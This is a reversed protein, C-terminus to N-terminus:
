YRALELKHSLRSSLVPYGHSVVWCRFIPEFIQAPAVGLSFSTAARFAALTFV